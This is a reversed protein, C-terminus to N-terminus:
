QCQTAGDGHRALECAVLAAKKKPCNPYTRTVYEFNARFGHLQRLDVNLAHKADQIVTLLMAKVECNM